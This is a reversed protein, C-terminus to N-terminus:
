RGMRSRIYQSLPYLYYTPLSSASLQELHIIQNGQHFILTSNNGKSTDIRKQTDSFFGNVIAFLEDINQQIEEAKEPYDLKKM